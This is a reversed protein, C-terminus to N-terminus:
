EVVMSGAGQVRTVACCHRLTASNIPAFLRPNRHVYKNASFVWGNLVKRATFGTEWDIVRRRTVHIATRVSEDDNSADAGSPDFVLALPPQAHKLNRVHPHAPFM